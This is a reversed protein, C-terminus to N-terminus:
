STLIVPVEVKAEATEGIVQETETKVKEMMKTLLAVIKHIRVGINKASIKSSVNEGHEIMRKVERNLDGFFTKAIYALQERSTMAALGDGLKKIKNYITSRSYPTNGAIQGVCDSVNFHIDNAVGRIYTSLVSLDDEAKESRRAERRKKERESATELSVYILGKREADTLSDMHTGKYIQKNTMYLSSYGNAFQQALIKQWSDYFGKVARVAVAEEEAFWNLKYRADHSRIKDLVQEYTINPNINIEEEVVYNFCTYRRGTKATSLIDEIRRRAYNVTFGTKANGTFKKKEKKKRKVYEDHNGFVFQSPWAVGEQALRAFQDRACYKGDGLILSNTFYLKVGEVMDESCIADEGTVPHEATMFTHHFKIKYDRACSIAFDLIDEVESIQGNKEVFLSGDKKLATLYDAFAKYHFPHFTTLKAKKRREVEKYIDQKEEATFFDKDPKETIFDDLAFTRDLSDLYLCHAYVGKNKANQTGPMRFIHGLNKTASDTELYVNGYVPIEKCIVSWLSHLSDMARDFNEHLRKTNYDRQKKKKLHSKMWEDVKYHVQVGRGTMVFATPALFNKARQVEKYFADSFRGEDAGDAYLADEITEQVETIWDKIVQPDRLKANTKEEDTHIDLDVILAQVKEVDAKKLAKSRNAEVLRPMPLARDSVVRTKATEDEERVTFFRRKKGRSPCFYVASESYVSQGDLDWPKIRFTRMKGTPDLICMQVSYEDSGFERHMLENDLESLDVKYLHGKDQEISDGFTEFLWFIFVLRRFNLMLCRVAKTILGRGKGRDKELTKIDEVNHVFRDITPYREITYEIPYYSYSTKDFIDRYLKEERIKANLREVDKQYRKAAKEEDTDKDPRRIYDLKLDRELVTLGGHVNFLTFAVYANKIYRGLESYDAVSSSLTEVADGLEENDKKYDTSQWVFSYSALTLVAQIVEDKSTDLGLNDKKLFKRILDEDLESAYRDLLKNEEEGWYCFPTGTYPNEALCLAGEAVDRVESSLREVIRKNWGNHALKSLQVPYYFCKVKEKIEKLTSM